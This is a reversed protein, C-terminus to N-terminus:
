KSLIIFEWPKLMLENTGQCFTMPNTTLLDTGQFENEFTLGLKTKQGSLNIVAVIEDEGKQRRYALVRESTTELFVIDGGEEGNWLAPHEKKLHILKTLLEENVFDEWLIQDKEFFELRHDLNVEQGSYILPMGPVTFILALMAQQAEGMREEVTGNWSNEDHNDIFHLPYTGPPYSPIKNQFYDKLSEAKKVGRAISNLDHFLSWGYNANFAYRMLSMAKDDEALMYVPKIRDLKKRATEWFELPVGGAYDCRFGDVDYEKVWYTMAKLMARQMSKSDYNLDAVDEWTEPFIIEGKANKTYWDPHKRIWEHDWGTHNAVWDLIVKFGMEHCTTVLHKFDEKTGFEPNVECYDEISYYSGLTGLRKERSIPYIPMFWLIKVGMAQLRPLHEEFAKFTGEKTYQRINVEYMTADVSWEPVTVRDGAGSCGTLQALILILVACSGIRNRMKKGM